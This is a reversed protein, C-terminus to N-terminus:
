WPMPINLYGLLLGYFSVGTFLQSMLDLLWSIVFWTMGRIKKSAKIYRKKWKSAIQRIGNSYVINPSAETAPRNIKNKKEEAIKEEKEKVKAVKDKYKNVIKQLQKGVKPEIAALKLLEEATVLASSVVGAETLSTQIGDEQEQYVCLETVLEKYFKEKKLCEPCTKLHTEYEQLEIEKGCRAKATKMHLQGGNFYLVTFTLTKSAIMKGFIFLAGHVTRLRKLQKGIGVGVWKGFKAIPGVVKKVGSGINM